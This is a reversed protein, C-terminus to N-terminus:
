QTRVSLHRHGCTGLCGSPTWFLDRLADELSFTVSQDKCKTQASGATEGKSIERQSKRRMVLGLWHKKALLLPPLTATMTMTLCQSGSTGEAM